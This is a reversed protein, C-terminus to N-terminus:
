VAKFVNRMLIFRKFATVQTPWEAFRFYQEVDYLDYLTQTLVIRILRIGSEQVSHWALSSKLLLLHHVMEALANLQQMLSIGFCFPCGIWSPHYGFKNSLEAM